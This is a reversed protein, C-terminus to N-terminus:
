PLSGASLSPLRPLPANLLTAARGPDAWLVDGGRHRVTGPGAGAIRQLQESPVMVVAVRRNGRARSFHAALDAAAQLDGEAAPAESSKLVVHSGPCEQAHFWLDGRRAQRLSIWDNQRHNRGVQVRLGGPTLLELPQPTAPPEPQAQRRRLDKPEHGGRGLMAEIDQELALLDGPQEAHQELFTLSGEIQELTRSHLELRPTIAAVSRRLRRARKYLAQAEGIEERSPNTGCLLTDARRQLADSGAVQDLLSQQQDRLREQRSRAGQLRQELHQRRRLAEQAALRPGYYAALGPNVGAPASATGWCRYATAGGPAFGFREQQLDALWRQWQRWLEAWQPDSLETVPLALLSEAEGPQDGALQLALSPSIGQYCQQLARRLSVPVLSLRRRWREPSEETRPRDGQLPPPPAYPDGSGIPRLRSQQQRVQRALAIVRRHGELLFVNSHRGMLEVILHRSIPEGPRPAFQLDVVREWGEQVIAVLALGALGHQLQQALTSGQGQRLPPEVALLRPAEALWSIELWHRGLQSRLGLQLTHAAPQQAKEFRSPLLMPRLEALVARLTTIDIAQLSTVNLPAFVRCPM